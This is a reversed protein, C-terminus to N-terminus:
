NIILYCKNNTDTERVFLPKFVNLVANILENGARAVNMNSNITLEFNINKDNEIM